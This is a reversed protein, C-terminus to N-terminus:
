GKHRLHAESELPHEVHQRGEHRQRQPRPQGLRAPPPRYHRKIDEDREHREHRAKEPPAGVGHRSYRGIVGEVRRYDAQHFAGPAVVDEELVGCADRRVFVEEVGVVVDAVRPVDVRLSKHAQRRAPPEEGVRPVVGVGVVVHAPHVYRAPRKVAPVYGFVARVEELFEPALPAHFVEDEPRVGGPRAKGAVRVVLHDERALTVRDVAKLAGVRAGHGDLLARRVHSVRVAERRLHRKATERRPRADRHPGVVGGLPARLKLAALDGDPVIGPLQRKRGWGGVADHRKMEGPPAPQEDDGDDADEHAYGEGDQRAPSPPRVPPRVPPHVPPPVPPM